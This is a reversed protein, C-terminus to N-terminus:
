FKKAEKWTMTEKHQEQSGILEKLKNKIMNYEEEKEASDNDSKQTENYIYDPIKTLIALREELFSWYEANYAAFGRWLKLPTLDRELINTLISLPLCDIRYNEYEGNYSEKYGYLLDGGPELFGTYVPSGTDSEVDNQWKIEVSKEIVPCNHMIGFALNLADVYKLVLEITIKTRANPRSKVDVALYQDRRLTDNEMSNSLMRFSAFLDGGLIIPSSDTDVNFFNIAEYPYLVTFSVIHSENTFQNDTYNTKAKIIWDVDYQAGREELYAKYGKGIKITYINDSIIPLSRLYVGPNLTDTSKIKFRNLENDFFLVAYNNEEKMAIPNNYLERRIMTKQKM